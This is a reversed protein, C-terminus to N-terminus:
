FGSAIPCTEVVLEGGQFATPFCVVLSGFMDHGRPTDVHAKFHGGVPYINLKYLEARIKESNPSLIGKIKDLIDYDSVHFSTFFHESSLQLASRYSPDLVAKAGKGFTAASCCEM